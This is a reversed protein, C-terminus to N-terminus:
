LIGIKARVHDFDADVNIIEPFNTDYHNLFHQIEIKWDSVIQMIGQVICMRDFIM